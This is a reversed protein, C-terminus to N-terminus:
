GRRRRGCARYAVALVGFHDPHMLSEPEPIAEHAVSGSLFLGGAFPFFLHGCIREAIAAM